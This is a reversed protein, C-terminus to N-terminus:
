AYWKGVDDWADVIDSQGLFCLLACLVGDAAVHAAETDPDDKLRKLAELAEEPTMKKQDYIPDNTIESM